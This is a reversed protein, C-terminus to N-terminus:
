EVAAGNVTWRYAPAVTLSAGVFCDREAAALLESLADEAPPPELAVDFGVEIAVFAFRGDDERRTVTGHARGSSRAEIGARRAHYELSTLTCRCLATLLVHEPTWNDGDHPLPTGGRDSAAEWGGDLEVAYEFTRARVTAVAGAYRGSRTRSM